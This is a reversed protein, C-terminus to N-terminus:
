LTEFASTLMACAMAPHEDCLFEWATQQDKLKAECGQTECRNMFSEMADCPAGGTMGGQVSNMQEDTLTAIVEKKFKLKKM